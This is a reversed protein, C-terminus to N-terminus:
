EPELSTLFIQGFNRRVVPVKKELPIIKGFEIYKIIIIRFKIFICIESYIM